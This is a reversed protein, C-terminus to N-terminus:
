TNAGKVSCGARYAAAVASATGDPSNDDVVLIAANQPIYSFVAKIFREINDIENYTPIITLIKM